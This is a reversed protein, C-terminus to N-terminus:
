ERSFLSLRSSRPKNIKLFDARHVLFKFVNMLPQMIWSRLYIMCNETSRNDRINRARTVSTVQQVQTDKHTIIIGSSRRTMIYKNAQVEWARSPPVEPLSSSSERHLLWDCLCHSYVPFTFKGCAISGLNDLGPGTSLCAEAVPIWGTCVCVTWYGDSCDHLMDFLDVAHRVNLRTRMGRGFWLVTICNLRLDNFGRGFKLVVIQM